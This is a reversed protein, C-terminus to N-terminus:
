GSSSKLNAALNLPKISSKQHIRYGFVFLLIGLAPLLTPEPVAVAAETNKIEVLSIHTAQDFRRSFLGSLFISAPTAGVQSNLSGSNFTFNPSSNLISLQANSQADQATGSLTLRDLLTLNNPDGGEFIQFSINSKATAREGPLQDTHTGVQLLAAFNFSFTDGAGIMFDYGAVGASSRGFGFYAGNGAGNAQSNSFNGATGAQGCTSDTCFFADQQTTATAVGTTVVQQTALAQPNTPLHSFDQFSVQANSYALTAALASQPAALSIGIPMGVVVMLASKFKPHM